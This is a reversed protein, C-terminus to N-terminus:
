SASGIVTETALPFHVNGGSFPPFQGRDAKMQERVPSHLAQELAAASDFVIKNRQFHHVRQWPLADIWDVRTYVEVARIGPFRCMLPVHSRLYYTLWENLSEPEGPYHVLFSCSRRGPEQPMAPGCVEYSRTWMAQQFVQAQALSTPLSASLARLEGDSGGASELTELREFCLQLTLLPAPGDDIYRDRAVVPIMLHARVLGRINRMFAALEAYDTDALRALPDPHIFTLFHSFM